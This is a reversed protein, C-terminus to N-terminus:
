VSKAEVLLMTTNEKRWMKGGSIEQRKASAIKVPTSYGRM